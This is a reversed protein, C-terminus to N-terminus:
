IYFVFYFLKSIKDKLENYICVHIYVYKSLSIFQLILRMGQSKCHPLVESQERERLLGRASSIYTNIYMLFAMTIFERTTTWMKYQDPRGDGIRFPSICLLQQSMICCVHENQYRLIHERLESVFSFFVSVKTELTVEFKNLPCRPVKFLNVILRWINM